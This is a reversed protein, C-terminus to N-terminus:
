TFLHSALEAWKAAIFEFRIADHGAGQSEAVLVM